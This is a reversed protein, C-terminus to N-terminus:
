KVEETTDDDVILLLYFASLTRRYARKGFAFLSRTMVSRSSVYPRMMRYNWKDLIFYRRDQADCYSSLLDAGSGSEIHMEKDRTHIRIGFDGGSVM